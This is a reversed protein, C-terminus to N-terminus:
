KIVKTNPPLIRKAEITINKVEYTAIFTIPLIFVVLLSLIGFVGSFNM